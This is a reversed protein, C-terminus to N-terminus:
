EDSDSVLVIQDDAAGGRDSGGIDGFKKAGSQVNAIPIEMPEVNDEDIDLVDVIESLVHATSGGAGQQTFRRGSTPPSPQEDFDFAGDAVARQMLEQRKRKRLDSPKVARPIGRDEEDFYSNTPNKFTMLYPASVQM